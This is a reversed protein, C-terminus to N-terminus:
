PFYVDRCNPMMQSMKKAPSKKKTPLRLRCKQPSKELSQLHGYSDNDHNNTLIQEGDKLVDEFELAYLNRSKKASTVSASSM